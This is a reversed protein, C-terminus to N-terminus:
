STSHIKLPDWKSCCIVLRKEFVSFPWNWMPYFLLRKTVFLLFGGADSCRVKLSKPTMGPFAWPLRMAQARTASFCSQRGMASELSFGDETSNCVSRPPFHHPQQLPGLPQPLREEGCLSDVAPCSEPSLLFVQDFDQSNFISIIRFILRSARRNTLFEQFGCCDSRVM